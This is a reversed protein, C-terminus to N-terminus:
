KYYLDKPDLLSLRWINTERLLTATRRYLLPDCLGVGRNHFRSGIRYNKIMIGTVIAISWFNDLFNYHLWEFHPLFLFTSCSACSDELLDYTLVLWFAHM